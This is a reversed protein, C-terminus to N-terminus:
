ATGIIRNFIIFKKPSSMRSTCKKNIRQQRLGVNLHTMISPLHQVKPIHNPGYISNDRPPLKPPKDKSASRPSRIGASRRRQWCRLRLNDQLFPGYSGSQNSMHPYEFDFQLIANKLNEAVNWIQKKAKFKTCGRQNPSLHASHLNHFSAFTISSSRFPPFFYTM